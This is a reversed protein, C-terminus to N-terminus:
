SNEWNLGNEKRWQRYAAFQERKALKRRAPDEELFTEFAKRNTAAAAPTIPPRDPAQLNADMLNQQIRGLSRAIGLVVMVLLVLLGALAGLLIVVTSSDSDPM